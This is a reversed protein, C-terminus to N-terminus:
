QVDDPAFFPNIGDTLLSDRVTLDFIGTFIQPQHAMRYPWGQWGSFLAGIYHMSAQYHEVLDENMAQVEAWTFHYVGVGRRDHPHNFVFWQRRLDTAFGDRLLALNIRKGYESKPGCFDMLLWPGFNFRLLRRKHNKPLTLVCPRYANSEANLLELTQRLFGFGWEAEARDAFICDFPPALPSHLPQTVID